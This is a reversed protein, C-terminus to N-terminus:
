GDKPGEIKFEAREAAAIAADLDDKYSDVMRTLRECEYDCDCQPHDCGDLGSRAVWERAMVEKLRERQEPTM